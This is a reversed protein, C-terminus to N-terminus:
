IPELHNEVWADYRESIERTIQGPVGPGITTQDVQVIPVVGRSSSTLFAEDLSSLQDINVPQLQIEVKDIAVTLVIRRAIGWLIDQNATFMKQDKIAYFNSSFGELLEGKHNTIVGEYVGSPLARRAALRQSLWSNTKARPNHRTIARTAVSVGNDLSIGPVPQFPELALIVQNPNQRPITIRFRSNEFSGQHILMGLGARLWVRDLKLPIGELQASEELRDLHADLLIAHDGRFTRSVTYIGDPELQSAEQLSAAQYPAPELHGQPTLLAIPIKM